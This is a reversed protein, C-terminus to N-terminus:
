VNGRAGWVASIQRFNKEESHLGAAAGATAINGNFARPRRERGPGVVLAM